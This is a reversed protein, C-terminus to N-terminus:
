HEVQAWTESVCLLLLNTNGLIDTPFYEHISVMLHSPKLVDATHHASPVLLDHLM